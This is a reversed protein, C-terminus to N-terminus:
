CDRDPWCTLFKYRSIESGYFKFNEMAYEVRKGDSQALIRSFSGKYVVRPKSLVKRGAKLEFTFFVLENEQKAYDSM